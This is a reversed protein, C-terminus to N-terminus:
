KQRESVHVEVDHPKVYISTHLAQLLHTKLDIVSVGPGSSQTIGIRVQGNAQTVGAYIRGQFEFVAQPEEDLLDGLNIGDDKRSIKM